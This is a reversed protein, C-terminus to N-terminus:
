NRLVLLLVAAVALVGLAVLAVVLTRVLRELRATRDEAAAVTQEAAVSVRKSAGAPMADRGLWDDIETVVMELTPMRKDRNKECMRQIISAVVPSVEPCVTRIDAIPKSDLIQWLVEELSEGKFPLKGSILEFLVIGLAYIDARSDVKSSDMAQEPAMYYPTGFMSGASTKVSEDSDMKALGLDALKAKGDLAFMINDPKVNRHVVGQQAAVALASAVQRVISLAERVPVTGLLHLRDRLSGGSMYEMVLYHCRRGEDYGADHIGVLNPHRIATVIKAERAFRRVFEEDDESEADRMVKVAFEAGLQDHRALYVEGTGGRGILRVVTYGQFKDGERLITDAAEDSQSM